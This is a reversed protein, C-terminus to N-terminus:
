NVTFTDPVPVIVLLGAPILQGVVQLAPKVEPVRIVSDAVAADLKVNEPNAPGQVPIVQV